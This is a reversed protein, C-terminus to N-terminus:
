CIDDMNVIVHNNMKELHVRLSYEENMTTNYLQIPYCIKHGAAELKIIYNKIQEKEKTTMGRVPHIVKIKM